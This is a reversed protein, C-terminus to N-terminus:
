PLEDASLRDLIAPSGRGLHGRAGRFGIRHAAIKQLTSKFKYARCDAVRQHLRRSHHVIVEHGTRSMDFEAARALALSSVRFVFVPDWDCSSFSRCNLEHISM